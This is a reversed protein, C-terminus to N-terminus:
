PPSRPRAPLLGPSAGPHAPFGEASPTAQPHQSPLRLKSEANRSAKPESLSRRESLGNRGAKPESLAGCARLQRRPRLPPRPRHRPRQLPLHLRMPPRPVPPLGRSGERLARCVGVCRRRSVHGRRTTSRRLRLRLLRFPNLSRWPTSAMKLSRAPQKSGSRKSLANRRPRQARERPAGLRHTRLTRRPGPLLM